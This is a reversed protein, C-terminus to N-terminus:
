RMVSLDEGPEGATSSHLASRGPAALSSSLKSTPDVTVILRDRGNDIRDDDDEDITVHSGEFNFMDDLLQDQEEFLTAEGEDDSEARDGHAYQDSVIVRLVLLKQLLDVKVRTMLLREQSKRKMADGLGDVQKILVSNTLISRRKAIEAYAAVNETHDYLTWELVHGCDHAQRRFRDLTRVTEEITGANLFPEPMAECQRLLRTAVQLAAVWDPHEASIAKIDDQTTPWQPTTAPTAYRRVRKQEWFLYAMYAFYCAVVVGNYRVLVRNLTAPVLLSNRSRSATSVIILCDIIWASYSPLDTGAM